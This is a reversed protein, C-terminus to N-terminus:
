RPATSSVKCSVHCLPNKLFSTLFFLTSIQSLNVPLLLKCFFYCFSQACVYWPFPVDPSGKGAILVATPKTSNGSSAPLTFPKTNKVSGHKSEVKSRITANLLGVLKPAHENEQGQHETTTHLTTLVQPGESPVILHGHQHSRRWQELVWRLNRESSTEKYTLSACKLVKRNRWQDSTRCQM